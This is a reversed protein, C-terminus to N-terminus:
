TAGAGTATVAVTLRVSSAGVLPAARHLTCVQHVADRQCQLHVAERQCQPAEAVFNCERTAQVAGPRVTSALRTFTLRDVAGHRALRLSLRLGPAGRWAGVGGHEREIMTTRVLTALNRRVTQASADFRRRISGHPRSRCWRVIAAIEANPQRPSAARCGSRGRAGRERTAFIPHILHISEVPCRGPLTLSFRTSEAICVSGPSRRIRVARSDHSRQGGHHTPLFGPAATHAIPCPTAGNRGLGRGVSRHARRRDMRPRAGRRADFGPALPDRPRWRRSHGESGACHARQWSGPPPRHRRGRRSELVLATFSSPRPTGESDRRRDGVRGSQRQAVCPQRPRGLNLHEAPSGASRLRSCLGEPGQSGRCLRRPDRQQRFLSSVAILPWARPATSEPIDVLRAVRGAIATRRVGLPAVRRFPAKRAASM